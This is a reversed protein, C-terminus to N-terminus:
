YTAYRRTGFRGEEDVERDSSVIVTEKSKVAKDQPTLVFSLNTEFLRDILKQNLLQVQAQKGESNLLGELTRTQCLFLLCFNLVTFSIGASAKILSVLQKGERVNYLIRNM